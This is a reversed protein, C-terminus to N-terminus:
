PTFDGGFADDFSFGGATSIEQQGVSQSQSQGQGGATPLNAWDEDDFGTTGSTSSHGRQETHASEGLGGLGGLMGLASGMGVGSQQNNGLGGGNSSPPEVMEFDPSFDDFESDFDKSAQQTHPTFGSPAPVEGTAVTASPLNEFDFDDDDFSTTSPQQQPQTASTPTPANNGTFLSFPNTPQPQPQSQPQSQAQAQSTPASRSGLPPPPPERRTVPTVPSTPAIALAPAAPPMPAIENDQLTGIAARDEPASPVADLHAPLVPGLALTQLSPLESSQEKSIQQPPVFAADEERAPGGFAYREQDLDEPGEDEDDSSDVEHHPTTAETPEAAPHPQLAEVNVPAPSEEVAARPTSLGTSPMESVPTHVESSPPIAQTSATREPMPPHPITPMELTAPPAAPPEEFERFASDFDAGNAPPHASIVTPASPSTFSDDFSDGFSSSFENVKHPEPTKDFSQMGFPDEEHVNAVPTETTEETSAPVGFPDAADRGGAPTEATQIEEAAPEAKLDLEETNHEETPAIASVLATGAGVVSATVASGAALAGAAIAGGVGLFGKQPGSLGEHEKVSSRPLQPPSSPLSSPQRNFRDFPNNSKQSVGTPNPSIVRQPTSPLPIAAAMAVAPSITPSIAREAFPSALEEIPDEHQSAAVKDMEKQVIDKGGELTSVQKKSIAVMGKQQRAEKKMKELVDKLINTEETVEKMRKGLNRVEEKDQLLTQEIEDKEARLASLESENRILDDRLTNLKEKQEATRTKLDKVLRTETEHQARVSSLRMELEHLEASSSKVSRELSEKEGQLSTVSRSTSDLANRANGVDASNDPVGRSTEEDDGM